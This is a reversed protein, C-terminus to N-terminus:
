QEGKTETAASDRATTDVADATESPSADPAVSTGAPAASEQEAAPAESQEPGPAASQEPAPVASQPATGSTALQDTAGAPTGMSPTMPRIREKKPNKRALKVARQTEIDTRVILHRLIRDNNRMRRDLEALSGESNFIFLHYIGENFKQIPYALRRRGWPEESALTAGTKEGISRFDNILSTSEEEAVQPSLIFLVEYTRM